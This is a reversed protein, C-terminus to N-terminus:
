VKNDSEPKINTNSHRWDLSPGCKTNIRAFMSCGKHGCTDSPTQEFKSELLNNDANDNLHLQRLQALFLTM